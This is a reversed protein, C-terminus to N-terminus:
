SVEDKKALILGRRGVSGEMFHNQSFKSPVSLTHSMVKTKGAIDKLSLLSDSGLEDDSDSESVIDSDHLEDPVDEDSEAM